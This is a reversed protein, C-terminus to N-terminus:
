EASLPVGGYDAEQSNFIRNLFWEIAMKVVVSLLAQLLFTLVVGGILFKYTQRRLEDRSATPNNEYARRLATVARQVDTQKRRMSQTIIPSYPGSMAMAIHQDSCGQEQCYEDTLQDWNM